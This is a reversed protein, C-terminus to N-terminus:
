RSTILVLAFAIVVMWFKYVALAPILVWQMQMMVALLVLLVAIGKIINRTKNSM